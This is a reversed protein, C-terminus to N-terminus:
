PIAQTLFCGLLIKLDLCFWKFDQNEVKTLTGQRTTRQLRWFSLNQQQQRIEARFSRFLPENPNPPTVFITAENERKRVRESERECVRVRERSQTVSLHVLLRPFRRQHWTQIGRLSLWTKPCSATAAEQATKHQQTSDTTATTSTSWSPVKEIDLVEAIANSIIPQKTAKYKLLVTSHECNFFLFIMLMSILGFRDKSSGVFTQVQPGSPLKTAFSALM